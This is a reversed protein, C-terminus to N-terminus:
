SYEKPSLDSIKSKKGYKKKLKALMLSGKSKGKRKGGGGGQPGSGPGGM